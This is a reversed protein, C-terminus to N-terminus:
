ISDSDLEDDEGGVNIGQSALIQSAANPTASIVVDSVGEELLHAYDEDTAVRYRGREMLKFIKVRVKESDKVMPKGNADLMVRTQTSLLTSVYGRVSTAKPALGAVELATAIEPATMTETGMVKRMKDIMSLEGVVKRGVPAKSEGEEPEVLTEESTTETTLPIVRVLDEYSQSLLNHEKAAQDRIAQAKELQNNLSLILDESKQVKSRTTELALKMTKLVTQVDVTTM